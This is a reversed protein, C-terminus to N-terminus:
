ASLGIGIMANNMATYIATVAADSGPAAMKVSAAPANNPSTVPVIMTDNAEDTPAVSANRTDRCKNRSQTCALNPWRSFAM